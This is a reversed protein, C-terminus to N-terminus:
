DDITLVPSLRSLNPFYLKNASLAMSKYLDIDKEELNLSRFRVKKYVEILQQKTVNEKLSFNKGDFDVIGINKLYTVAQVTETFTLRFRSHLRFLSSPKGNRIM